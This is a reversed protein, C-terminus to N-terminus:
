EGRLGARRWGQGWCGGKGELKLINHPARGLLELETTRPSTRIFTSYELAQVQTNTNFTFSVTAGEQWNLLKISGLWTGDAARETFTFREEPDLLDCDADAACHTARSLLAIPWVFAAFPRM